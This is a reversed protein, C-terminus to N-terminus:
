HKLSKLYAYLDSLEQDNVENLLGAPMLSQRSPRISVIQEGAIRVTTDASTQILTGEPSEYVILGQYVKGSDTELQSTQYLPSVDRNPEVIAAFLDDRSFRAAAGALDPGLRSEGSHCRHCSRREYVLKGRGADGSSWDVAGLRKKWEAADAGAFGALQTAQDPYRTTFWDFWPQYAALLDTQDNEKVEINQGSWVRMLM